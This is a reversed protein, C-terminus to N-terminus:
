QVFEPDIPQMNFKGNANNVSVLTGEQIGLKSALWEPIVIRLYEGDVEGIGRSCEVFEDGGAELPILLTLKGDIKEVPGQLSTVDRTM